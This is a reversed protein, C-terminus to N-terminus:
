RLRLKKGVYIDLVASLPSLARADYVEFDAIYNRSSEFNDGKRWIEGWMNLVVAKKRRLKFDSLFPSYM